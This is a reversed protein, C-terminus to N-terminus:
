PTIPVDSIPTEPKEETLLAILKNRANWVTNINVGWQAKVAELDNDTLSRTLLTAADKLAENEAEIIEVRKWAKGIGREAADAIKKNEARLIPVCTCHVGNSPCKEDMVIRHSEKIDALEAELQAIYDLKRRIVREQLAAKRELQEAYDWVEDYEKGAVARHTSDDEWVHREPKM